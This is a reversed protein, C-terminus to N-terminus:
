DRQRIAISKVQAYVQTGVQLSLQACSRRTIRALISEGDILMRVLVTGNPEAQLQEIKAPLINLISTREPRDLCLSVDNARVRLSVTSGVRLDSGPVWLERGAASIATLENEADIATVAARLVASAENGGLVPLETQLLVTQLDGHTVVIGDSMVALQDCLQCIEDINHSVYIIPVGADQHLRDLYPLVDNKRAEDLSALPEDMLLLEPDSLLARGIAVRQAEGGSLGSTARALLSELGLMDVIREFSQAPIGRRSRRLGYRLNAEISLHPFLRPEQFVYGIRRKESPVRLKQESDELLTNRISVRGSDAAELGAVCRLLSTKGAGSPGFLGTIGQSALDIDVDLCFDARQQLLRINISEPDPV